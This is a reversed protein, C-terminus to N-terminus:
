TDLNYTKSKCTECENRAQWYECPIDNNAFFFEWIDEYDIRNWIEITMERVIM